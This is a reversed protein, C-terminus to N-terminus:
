RAFGAALTAAKDALKGAFVLNRTKLAAEAQQLFRQATDYQTRGDAGLTAVNVKALDRAARALLNRIAAETQVETGPSPTLTLPPAAPRPPEPRVVPEPRVPEPRAPRAVPRQPAAPAPPPPPAPSAPEPEEEAYTAIVRPPPPPPDLTPLAPEVRMPAKSACGSAAIAMAVIVPAVRMM